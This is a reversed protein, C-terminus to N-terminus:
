GWGRGGGPVGGGGGRRGRARARARARVRGPFAAKGRLNGGYEVRCPLGVAFTAGYEREVRYCRGAAVAAGHEHEHVHEHVVRFPLMAAFTAGRGAVGAGCQRIPLGVRLSWGTVGGLGWRRGTGR